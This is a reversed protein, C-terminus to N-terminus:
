DVKNDTFCDLILGSIGDLNLAVDVVVFDDGRGGDFCDAFSGVADEGGVGFVVFFVTEGGNREFHVSIGIKVKAGDAARRGSAFVGFQM